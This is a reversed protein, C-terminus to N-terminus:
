CKLCGKIRTSRSAGNLTMINFTSRIKITSGHVAISLIKINGCEEEEEGDVVAAAVPMEEVEEEEEGEFEEGDIVHTESM